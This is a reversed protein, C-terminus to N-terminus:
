TITAEQAVLLEEAGEFDGERILTFYDAKFRTDAIDQARREETAQQIEEGTTPQGFEERRKDLSAQDLANKTAAAKFFNSVQKIINAFPISAIIKEWAQPNLIENVEDIARQEGELDGADRAAKVGFSLTQLAEEKLFGSFPYTGIITVLIGAAPLSLGAKAVFSSTLGTTKANTAFNAAAPAGRAAQGLEILKGVIAKNQLGTRIKGISESSVKIKQALAGGAFAVGSISLPLTGTKLRGEKRLERFGPLDGFVKSIIGRDDKPKEKPTLQITEPEEREKIKQPRKIEEPEERRERRKRREREATRKDIRRRITAESETQITRKGKKAEEFERKAKASGLVITEPKKKKKKKRAM